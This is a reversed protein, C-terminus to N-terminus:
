MKYMANAGLYLAFFKEQLDFNQNFLRARSYNSISINYLNNKKPPPNNPNKKKKKQLPPNVLGFFHLSHYTNNLQLHYHRELLALDAM